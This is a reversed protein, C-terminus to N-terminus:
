SLPKRLFTIAEKRPYCDYEATFLSSVSETMTMERCIIKENGVGFHLSIEYRSIYNFFSRDFELVPINSLAELGQRAETFLRLSYVNGLRSVDQFASCNSITLHRVNKVDEGNQFSSCRYISVKPIGQLSAFSVINRSGNITVSKQCKEGLSSIDTLSDWEYLAIVPIHAIAAVSQLTPNGFLTVSFLNQFVAPFLIHSHISPSHHQLSFNKLRTFSISRILESPLNTNFSVIHSESPVQIINPCDHIRLSHNRTLSSIDKIGLCRSFELSHINSLSSVDEIRPCDELSLYHLTRFHHVDIIERNRGLSLRKVTAFSRMVEPCELLDLVALRGISPLVSSVSHVSLTMTVPPKLFAQFSTRGNYMNKTALVLECPPILHFLHSLQLDGQYLFLRLQVQSSHIKMLISSRFDEDCLFKRSTELDKLIIKRTRFKVDRFLVNATNLLEFYDRERLYQKIEFFLEVPIKKKNM